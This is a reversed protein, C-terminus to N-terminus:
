TKQDKQWSLDVSCKENKTIVSKLELIEMKKAKYNRDRQQHERNLSSIMIHEKVEKLITEKLDKFM